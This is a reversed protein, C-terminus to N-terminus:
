QENEVKQLKNLLLYTNNGLKQVAVLDGIHLIFRDHISVLWSEIENNIIDTHNETIAGDSCTIPQAQTFTVVDDLILNNLFITDGNAVSIEIGNYFISIPKLTKIVGVSAVANQMKKSREDVQQWFRGEGSM